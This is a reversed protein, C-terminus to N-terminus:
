TKGIEFNIRNTYPKCFLKKRKIDYRFGKFGLSQEKVM